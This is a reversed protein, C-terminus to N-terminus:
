GEVGGQTGEAGGLACEALEEYSAGEASLRSRYLRLATATFTGAPTAPLSGGRPPAGARMRAVTVHPRLRRREPEWSSAAALESVAREHLRALAGGEDPIAIALAHPRRPPLWVPAGLSLEFSEGACRALAACLADIEEVPRSGLFCVTLHMLDPRLLRVAPSRPGHAAADRGALAARAWAALAECLVPPPDLAVFLRATAGRPM